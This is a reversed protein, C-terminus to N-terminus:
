ARGPAHSPWPTPAAGRLQEAVETLYWRRFLVLQPPTALTLLHQGRRCYDDAEDLLDVLPGVADAAATPLEMELDLEPIDQEAAAFLRAAREESGAGYRERLTEVLAVLRSPTHQEHDQDRGTSILTFERLLEELHQQHALWLPVPLQRLVITRLEGAGLTM